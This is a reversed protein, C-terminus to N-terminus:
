VEIYEIHYQNILNQYITQQSPHYQEDYDLM